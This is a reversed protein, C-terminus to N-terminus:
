CRRDINVVDPQLEGLRVFITEDLGLATPQGIGQADGDILATGYAM